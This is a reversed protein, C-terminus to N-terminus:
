TKSKKNVIPTVRYELIVKGEAELEAMYQETAGNTAAVIYGTVASVKAGHKRLRARLERIGLNDKM